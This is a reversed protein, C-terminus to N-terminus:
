KLEMIKFDNRGASDGDTSLFSRVIKAIFAANVSVHPFRIASGYFVNVRRYTSQRFCCRNFFIPHRLSLKAICHIVTSDSSTVNTSGRFLWDRAERTRLRGSDDVSNGSAQNFTLTM